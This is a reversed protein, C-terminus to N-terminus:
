KRTSSECALCQVLFVRTKEHSCNAVDMNTQLGDVLGAESDAVMGRLYLIPGGM